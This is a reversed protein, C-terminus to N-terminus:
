VHDRLRDAMSSPMRVARGQLNVCIHETTGTAVLARSSEERVQYAFQLKRTDIGALVTSLCVSDGFHLSRRIRLAVDVVALHHTRALETYSLGVTELYALRGMEMWPLYAAHYVVQMMDTEAFRVKIRIDVARAEGMDAM